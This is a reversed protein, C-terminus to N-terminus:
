PKFSVNPSTLIFFSLKENNLVDFGSVGEERETHIWFFCFCFVFFKAEVIIVAGSKIIDLRRESPPELSVNPSTFRPSLKIFSYM